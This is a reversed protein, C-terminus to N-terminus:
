TEQFAQHLHRRFELRTLFQNASSQWYVPYKKIAALLPPAIAELQSPSVFQAFHPLSQQFKSAYKWKGGYLQEPTHKELLHCLHQIVAQSLETSWPHQGQNLLSFLLRPHKLFPDPSSTLIQLSLAQQRDPPLVAALTELPELRIPDNNQSSPLLTLDTTLLAEAWSQNCHLRTAIAWGELFLEQWQDPLAKILDTATTHWRACWDNPHIVGLMQVLWGAKEGHNPFKTQIGDREMEPTLAEPLVIVLRNESTLTLLPVVRQVMRHYFRSEPLKAL